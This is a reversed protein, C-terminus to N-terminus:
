IIYGTTSRRSADGAFDADEEVVLTLDDGRVGVLLLVDSKHAKMYAVLRRLRRECEDNWKAVRRSLWQIAFALHPAANMAPYMEPAAAPTCPRREGHIAALRVRFRRSSIM